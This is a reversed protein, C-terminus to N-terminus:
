DSLVWRTFVTIVIIMSIIFSYNTYTLGLYFLGVLFWNSIRFM